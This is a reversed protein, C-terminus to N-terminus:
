SRHCSYGHDEDELEIYKLTYRIITIHVIVLSNVISIVDKCKSTYCTMRRTKM